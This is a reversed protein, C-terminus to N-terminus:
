RRRMPYILLDEANSQGLIDIMEKKVSQAEEWTEVHRVLRLRNEGHRRPNYESLVLVNYGTRPTMRMREDYMRLWEDALGGVKSM